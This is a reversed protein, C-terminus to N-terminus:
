VCFVFCSYVLLVLIWFLVLIYPFCSLFSLMMLDLVFLGLDVLWVFVLLVM